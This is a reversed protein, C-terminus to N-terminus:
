KAPPKGAPKPRPLTKLRDSAENAVPGSPVIRLLQDLTGRAGQLDGSEQQSAALNLMVQGRSPHSPYRSLFELRAEIVGAYNKEAYLATGRLLLAQAALPSGPYALEFGLASTAAKRFDGTKLSERMDEFQTKEATSVKFPQGDITVIVPELQRIRRDLDTYLDRQQNRGTVASHGTEEILGRLRAIEAKLRENENLLQLQGQSLNQLQRDLETLRVSLAEHRARLDLIARRAEDDSFLPWAPSSLGILMATLVATRLHRPIDRRNM